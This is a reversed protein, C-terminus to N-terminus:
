HSGHEEHGSEAGDYNEQAGSYTKALVSTEVVSGDSFRMTLNVEDGALLPEHLGMFMIHNGGPALEFTSGAAIEFGGEVESMTSSAGETKTEHLEVSDAIPSDVRELTVSTDSTNTLTGFVGTMGESAKAWGGELTVAAQQQEESTSHGDAAGGGDTTACGSLGIVAAVLGAAASARLARANM